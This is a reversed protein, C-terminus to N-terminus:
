EGAYRGRDINYKKLLQQLLTRNMGAAAAAQTVNGKSTRLIQELFEREVKAAARERAQRKAEKLDENSSIPGAAAPASEGSEIIEVPLDSLEIQVGRSLVIGRQIVNEMERVNGPWEYTRLAALAEPTMSKMNKGSEKAYKSLFFPVLHDIDEIRERLPPLKIPIVNLRYFLDERFKREKVRKVLNLNTAAIVRIDVPIPHVGGVREIEYEQLTRLLKIQLENPMEGIEDLFLTGGEAQEMKGIKQRIAGTFAGKEHGFLESSLLEESLTTCNVAVFTKSARPSWQTIARAFIEKGTGSEGLLLVTAKSDAAAKALDVVRNLAASNGVLQYRKSVQDRLEKRELNVASYFRANDIAIAAFNAFATCLQVDSEAFGDPRTSNIAEFVGILRDKVRLPVALLSRTDFGIEEDYGSYFRSDASTDGVILPRGERAVWGAVGTGVPLRQEKLEEGKTGKVVAFVLASGSEDLLLLSTAECQLLKGARTVLLDLIEDLELASTLLAGVEILSEFKDPPVQSLDEKM